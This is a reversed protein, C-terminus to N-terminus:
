KNPIKVISNIRIKKRLFAFTLLSFGSYLLGIIGLYDGNRSYLTLKDNLRIAAQITTATQLDTQKLVAGRQDIVGSIGTNASRIVYRRAEIARLSSYSFHHWCGASKKWWGDNTLVALMQAGHISLDGVVKGFASEFCIVVGVKIGCGSSFLIPNDGKTLSEGPGGLHLIYNGLFGLYEQFPMKEVGSVLIQKHGIQVGLENFMLASNYIKGSDKGYSLAGGIFNVKPFDHILEAVPVLAVDTKVSDIWLQPLATEPVLIFQTSGTVSSRALSVMDEVQQDATASSFKEIYPDVDPQVIVVEVLPGSEKYTSFRYLSWVVPLVFLTLLLIYLLINKQKPAATIGQFIFFVVLNISLVWLSGGLVGTFEYWQIIEPTNAFGNGLTLWPWQLTWRHHFFEFGLWLAPLAFKSTLNQFQLSLIIGLVWVGAMLLSNLVSILLMGPVSVYGIWWTSLLNWLLFAIFATLFVQSYKGKQNAHVIQNQAILLPIFAIFLPWCFGRITWPLSLLIGSIFSLFINQRSIM